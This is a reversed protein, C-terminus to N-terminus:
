VGEIMPCLCGPYSQFLGTKIEVFRLVMPLRKPCEFKSGAWFYAWM